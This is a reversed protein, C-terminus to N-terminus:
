IVELLLQALPQVIRQHYLSAVDINDGELKDSKGLAEACQFCAMVIHSYDPGIQESLDHEALNFMVKQVVAPKTLRKLISVEEPDVCELKVAMDCYRGSMTTSHGNQVSILPEWLGLELLCVGLSYLDHGMHYRKESQLGQRQPHRYINKTWDDEGLRSSLEDTKRTMRWGTLIPVGISVDGGPQTDDQSRTEFVLIKEPLISKHVLKAAHVSLVAEALGIALSIRSCIAPKSKEVEDENDELILNRLSKPKSLESPVRFVLELRPEVRYGLCQLVGGSALKLALHDAILATTYQTNSGSTDAMNQPELLVDLEEITGNEDKYEASALCVHPASDLPRAMFGDNHKTTLCFRQPTLLMDRSDVPRSKEALIIFLIFDYQWKRLDKLARKLRREGKVAFYVRNVQGDVDMSKELITQAETLGAWLKQLHREAGVKQGRNGPQGKAIFNEVLQVSLQLQGDLLDYGFETLETLVAPAKHFCRIREVILKALKGIALASGPAAIIALSLEAM